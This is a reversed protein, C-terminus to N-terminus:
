LNSRDARWTLKRNAKGDRFQGLIRHYDNEVSLMMVLAVVPCALVSSDKESYAIETGFLVAM